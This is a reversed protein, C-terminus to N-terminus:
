VDQIVSISMICFIIPLGMESGTWRNSGTEYAYSFSNGHMIVLESGLEGFSV